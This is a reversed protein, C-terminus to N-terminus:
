RRYRCSGHYYARFKKVAAPNDCIRRFNLYADREGDLFAPGQEKWEEPAPEEMDEPKFMESYPYPPDYPDHPDVFSIEAFFPKKGQAAREIFEIGKEAIFATDHVEAPLPSTYMQEWESAKKLPEIYRARMRDKRLNLDPPYDMYGVGWAFALAADYRAPHREEVWRLWPGWKVDDSVCCEDIGLYNLDDPVDLLMPTQHLKGFLGTRYGAGRLVEFFTPCDRGLVYNNGTMGNVCVSRGTLLVARNPACVPSTAYYRDFRVGREAMSAIFPTSDAKGGYCNLAGAGLQDAMILVVNKKKKM